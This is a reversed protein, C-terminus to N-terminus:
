DAGCTDRLALLEDPASNETPTTPETRATVITLPPVPYVEAGDSTNEEACPSVCALAVTVMESVPVTEAMSRRLAPVPAVVATVAVSVPPPPVPALTDTPICYPTAATVTVLPPVPKKAGGDMVKTGAEVSVVEDAAAAVALTVDPPM